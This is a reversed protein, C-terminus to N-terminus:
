SKRKRHSPQSIFENEMRYMIGERNYPFCYVAM